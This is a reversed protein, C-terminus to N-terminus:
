PIHSPQKAMSVEAVTAVDPNTAGFEALQEGLRQLELKATNLASLGGLEYCDGVEDLTTTIAATAASHARRLRDVRAALNAVTANLIAVEQTLYDDSRTRLPPAFQGQGLQYLARDFRVLPGAIRHSIRVGALAACLLSLGAVWWWHAHLYILVIAVDESHPRPTETVLEAILPGLMCLTALVLTFASQATIRWIVSWQFMPDVIMRRRWLPPRKGSPAMRSRPLETATTPEPDTARQSM